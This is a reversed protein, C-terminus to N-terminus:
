INKIENNYIENHKRLSILQCKASNQHKKLSLNCINQGCNPCEILLLHNNLKHNEYYMKNYEKTNKM